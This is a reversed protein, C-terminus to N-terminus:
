ESVVAWKFESELSDKASLVKERLPWPISLVPDDFRIHGEDDPRYYQTTKYCVIADESVVQFGHAFGPPVWLQHKLKSCLKVGMWNAYTSSEARIDVVVDYIEGALVTVLKGQPYAKQYHLGRLVGCTSFSVNDQVFLHHEGIIEQYRRRNFSEFFLGRRDSYITPEIIVCDDLTTEIVKM